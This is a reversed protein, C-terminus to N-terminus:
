RAPADPREPLSKEQDTEPRLAHIEFDTDFGPGAPAVLKKRSKTTPGSPALDTLQGYHAEPDEVAEHPAMEGAMLLPAIFQHHDLQGLKRPAPPLTNVQMKGAYRRVWSLLKEATKEGFLIRTANALPVRLPEGGDWGQVLTILGKLPRGARGWRLAQDRRLFGKRAAQSWSDKRQDFWALSAIAGKRGQTIRTERPSSDMIVLQAADTLLPIGAAELSMVFDTDQHVPLDKKFPFRRALDTPLMLTSTQLLGGRVYLYDALPEKSEPMPQQFGYVQGDRLFCLGTSALWDPSGGGKQHAEALAIQKELKEPLWYDDSDLFAILSGRAAMIGQNRCRAAGIPVSNRLMLGGHASVVAELPTVDESSADDIVIVETQKVTQAYVSLVARMALVRRNRNPIIVTVLPADETPMSAANHGGM